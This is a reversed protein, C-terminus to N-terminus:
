ATFTTRIGEVFCIVTTGSEEEILSEGVGTDSELFKWQMQGTTENYEFGFCTPAEGTAQLANAQGSAFFVTEFLFNNSGSKPNGDDTLYTSVIGSANTTLTYYRKDIYETYETGDFWFGRKRQFLNKLALPAVMKYVNTGSDVESQSAVKAVGAVGPTSSPLQAGPVVGSVLDAKLDMATKVAKQSPYKTDSNAAFTSDTDKNDVNEPTYGINNEQAAWNADTSGPDDVLARLTDGIGLVKDGITGAVTISWIDGKLIQGSPGSGGVSPYTALSADYVGRDDWLGVVLSDSYIAAAAEADSQIQAATKGNLFSADGVPSSPDLYSDVITDLIYKLKAATILGQTNEVLDALIQAKITAKEEFAM